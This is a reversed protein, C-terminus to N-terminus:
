LLFRYTFKLLFINHPKKDFLGDYLHGFSHDEPSPFETRNQTWVLFFTSGPIYEWRMVANSRFQTFNFDPNLGYNSVESDSLNEFRDNYDEADPDAIRKFESFGGASAFPQGWYQISLDPTLMYTMRLSMNYTTQNIRGVIYENNLTTVYQLDHRYNSISPNLSINLADTPRYTINLNLGESLKHNDFGANIWGNVGFRLKKRNDTGLFIWQNYSGPYSIAPGGRLDANSRNNGEVNIGTHFNWFNKLESNLYLEVGKTNNVGGFDWGSYQVGGTRMSRFISFPNLKRYQVWVWQVMNDTQTMFGIDNLELQPSSWTFGIDYIFEGASKGIVASGGTGTLSTRTPDFETHKNDPRQFFREPSLQTQTIAEETGNVQSVAINTKVYYKREKWYHTFDIGGTYASSHLMEMGPDSNNRNTATIMGGIITEGDNIDQQARAVFYNTLPEIGVERKFGLSDVEATERATVTELIGFSFGDSNKGTLKAAGLIRTNSSRQVYENVNDPGSEDTSFYIQPNRGIRRSYFLNDNNVVTIPFTLINNGEIFFPRQERFYLQFASLNVQSPDAEVQGFDPNVTLDLTVDSTLGIKADLGVEVDSAKGTAYPNGEQEEFRETKAVIYPQIELQKQPKIGKIGNLEAFRHVWGNAGNPIFQWTSRENNRFFRRTFQIGWTHHEKDAFRLQSLPIRMEAIWGKEDISTKLDWIPDWNSDWNDGNNSVYEDGKVGSVSSTFSFATRKDFYSDINVEIWDGEFGDRRSMRKVIKEPEPDEARVAIYLNKDDYLIKFYTQVSPAAGNDPEHQIFDGGGWPVQEWSEDTVLGDIKPATGSIRDTTYIKPKELEQASLSFIATGLFLLTICYIKM